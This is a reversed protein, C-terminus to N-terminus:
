FLRRDLKALNPLIIEDCYSPNIEIGVWRRGLEQSRILTTGSGTFVDMVTGDPPCSAMILPDILGGPYSATHGTVDRTKLVNWVTRRNRKSGEKDDEKVPELNFYYNRSKSFHFFYEHSRSFRDQASEPMPNGVYPDLLEIMRNARDEPIGAFKAAQSIQQLVDKQGSVGKAWINDNRLYWGENRLAFASMWPIGLLDKPKFGDLKSLPSKFDDKTMYRTGRNTEQKSGIRDAGAGQNSGAYSDGLNLWLNGTKKTVRRVESFIKALHDVYLRPTPEQGLCGNWAGCKQCFKGTSYSYANGRNSRQKDTLTEDSGQRNYGFDEDGWEHQCNEDGDWVIPEFDYCRLCYYPPSTICVDVSEDPIQKLASLVDNCFLTNGNKELKEGFKM